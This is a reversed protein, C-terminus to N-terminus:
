ILYINYIILPKYVGLSPPFPMHIVTYLIALAGLLSRILCEPQNWKLLRDILVEYDIMQTSKLALHLGFRPEMWPVM